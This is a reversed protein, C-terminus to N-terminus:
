PNGGKPLKSGYGSYCCDVLVKKFESYVHGVDHWFKLKTEEMWDRMTKLDRHTAPIILM